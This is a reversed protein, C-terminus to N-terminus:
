CNVAVNILNRKDASGRVNWKVCTIDQIRVRSNLLLCPPITQTVKYVMENTWVRLAVQASSTELASPEQMGFLLNIEQVVSNGMPSEM